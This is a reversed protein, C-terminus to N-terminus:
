GLPKAASVPDCYERIFAIKGDTVRLAACVEPPNAEFVETDVSRTLLPGLDVDLKLLGVV